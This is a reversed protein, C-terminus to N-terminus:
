MLIIETSGDSYSVEVHDDDIKVRGVEKKIEKAEEVKIKKAKAM